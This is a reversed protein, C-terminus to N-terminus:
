PGLFPWSKSFLNKSGLLEEIPFNCSPPPFFLFFSSFFLFISFFPFHHKFYHGSMDKGTSQRFVSWSSRRGSTGFHSCNNAFELKYKCKVLQLFTGLKACILGLMTKDNKIDWNSPFDFGLKTNQCFHM